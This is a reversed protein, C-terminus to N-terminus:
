ANSIKGSFRHSKSMSYVLFNPAYKDEVVHFRLEPYKLLNKRISFTNSFIITKGKITDILIDEFVHENLDKTRFQQLKFTRYNNSKKYLIEFEKPRIKKLMQISFNGYANLGENNKHLRLVHDLTQVIPGIKPKLYTNLLISSYSKSLILSSILWLYLLAILIFYKPNTNSQSILVKSNDFRNSPQSIIQCFIDM